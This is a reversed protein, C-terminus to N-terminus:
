FRLTQSLITLVTCLNRRTKVDRGDCRVDKMLSTGIESLREHNKGILYQQYPVTGEPGQVRYLNTPMKTWGYLSIVWSFFFIEFLVTKCAVHTRTRITCTILIKTQKKIILTSRQFNGFNPVIYEIFIYYVEVWSLVSINGARVGVVAVTRLM